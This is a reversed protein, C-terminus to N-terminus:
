RSKGVIQRYNQSDEHQPCIKWGGSKVQRDRTTYKAAESIFPRGGGAYYESALSGKLLFSLVQDSRCCKRV